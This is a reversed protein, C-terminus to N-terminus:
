KFCFEQSPVFVSAKHLRIPGDCHWFLGRIPKRRSYRKMALHPRKSELRQIKRSRFSVHRTKRKSHRAPSIVFNHPFEGFAAASNHGEHLAIRNNFM